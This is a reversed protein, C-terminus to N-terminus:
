STVRKMLRLRVEDRWGRYLGYLGGGRRAHRLSLPIFGLFGGAILFDAPSALAGPALPVFDVVAGLRLIDILNALGGATGILLALCESRPLSEGRKFVLVLLGTALAAMLLPRLLTRPAHLYVPLWSPRLATLAQATATCILLLLIAKWRPM